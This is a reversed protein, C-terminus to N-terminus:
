SIKRLLREGRRKEPEPNLRREPKFEAGKEM